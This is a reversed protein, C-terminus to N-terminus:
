KCILFNLSLFTKSVNGPVSNIIAATPSFHQNNDLDLRNKFAKRVDMSIDIGLNDEKGLSAKMLFSKMTPYM